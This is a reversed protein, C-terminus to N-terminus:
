KNNTSTKTNENKYKFCIEWSKPFSMQEKISRNSRYYTQCILLEVFRNLSVQEYNFFTIRIDGRKWYILGFTNPKGNVYAFSDIIFGAGRM